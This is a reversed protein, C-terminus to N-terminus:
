KVIPLEHAAASPIRYVVHCILIRMLVCSEIDRADAYGM